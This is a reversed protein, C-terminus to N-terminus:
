PFHGQKWFVSDHVWVNALWKEGGGEPVPRAEHLSDDDCNGDPFQSYFLVARGKKPTVVMGEPDGVQAKPFATEGGKLPENLYLLLTAFRTHPSDRVGWDHHSAYHQGNRYHVVQMNEAIGSPFESHMLEQPLQLVDAVRRYISDMVGTKTRELWSNVSTRTDTNVTEGNPGRMEVSSRALKKKASEIIFAAEEDSVLYDIEYARPRTSICRLTFTFNAQDNPGHHTTIQHEQGIYDAPWLFSKLPTHPYYALWPRSNTEKYKAAFAEEEMHRRLRHPEATDPEVYAYTEINQVVTFQFVIDNPKGIPTFCFTHTAYSNSTTETNPEMVGQYVNPNGRGPVWYRDLRKNSLNRIKIAKAMTHMKVRRPPDPHVARSEPIRELESSVTFSGQSFVVHTINLKLTVNVNVDHAMSSRIHFTQGHFSQIQARGYQSPAVSNLTNNWFIELRMPAHEDHNDVVLQVPAGSSQYLSRQLTGPSGMAMERAPTITPLGVLKNTPPPSPASPLNVFRDVVLAALGAALIM